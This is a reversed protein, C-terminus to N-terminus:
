APRSQWLDVVVKMARKFSAQDAASRAAPHPSEILHLTPILERLAERAVKGFAIVLDPHHLDLTASIHSLDALVKDSARGTITTSAEEWVISDCLDQGLQKRLNRGTVCGAFLAYMILRRRYDPGHTAIMYRVRDPDRVWTNQLFAVIKMNVFTPQNTLIQSHL